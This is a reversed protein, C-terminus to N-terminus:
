LESTNVPSTLTGGLTSSIPSALGNSTTAKTAKDASRFNLIQGQSIGISNQAVVRFYYVTHPALSTLGTNVAIQTVGAPLTQSPTRTFSALTQKTSYEFWYTTAAENPNVVGNMMLSVPDTSTMPLTLVRPLGAVFLSGAVFSFSYNTASLTGSCTIPYNGVPSSGTATTTCAPTGTVVATTEGNVFGTITYTLTPITGGSPVTQNSATVTLVKQNVAFTVSAPTAAVWNSNGPQTAQVTVSGAGTITLTSGKVTAPGSTVAYSVALGSSATATLGLPAVGYTQPGPNPFTITQAQDTASGSLAASQKAGTVNLSDDTFLLSDSLAGGLTPAFYVKAACSAGPLLSAVPCTSTTADVKFNVATTIATGTL